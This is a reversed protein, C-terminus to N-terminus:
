ICANIIGIFSDPELSAGGVLVGDVNELACLEGANAPKVSGGYLLHHLPTKTGLGMVGLVYRVHNHVKEVNEVTAVKGTGIAWIPEYAIVYGKTKAPEVPVSGELQRSITDLTTGDIYQQESEGMCIIPMLGQAYVAQAKAKIDADTQGYAQRRESHGVIVYQAGLDKIMLASIDGTYAGMEAAHCTQAGIAFNDSHIHSALRDILTAPPCIVVHVDRGRSAKDIEIVRKAWDKTGHMKWNGAFFLTM